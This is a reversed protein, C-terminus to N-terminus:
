IQLAACYAIPGHCRISGRNIGTGAMFNLIQFSFLNALHTTIYICIFDSQFSVLFPAICNPKCTSLNRLERFQDRIFM